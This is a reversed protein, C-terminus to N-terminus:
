EVENFDISKDFNSKLCTTEMYLINLKQEERESKVNIPIRKSVSGDQTSIILEGKGIKEAYFGKASPEYRGLSSPSVRYKLQQLTADGPIRLAFIKVVRKVERDIIWKMTTKNYMMRVRRKPYSWSGYSFKRRSQVGIQELVIADIQSLITATPISKKKNVISEVIM